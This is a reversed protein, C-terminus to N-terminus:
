KLFDYPYSEFLSCLMSQVVSYYLAKLFFAKKRLLFLCKKLFIAKSKSLYCKYNVFHKNKLFFANEKIQISRTRGGWRQPPPPFPWKPPGRNELNPPRQPARVGTQGGGVHFARYYTNFFLLEVYWGMGTVSINLM